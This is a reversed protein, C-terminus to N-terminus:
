LNIKSCQDKQPGGAMGNGVKVVLSGELGWMLNVHDFM